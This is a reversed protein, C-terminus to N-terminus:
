KTENKFKKFNSIFEKEYKKLEKTELGNYLGTSMFAQIEDDIIKKDNVYGMKILKKKLKDYHTPKINKILIDVIKKYTKNTYYFGHAIEHDMTKLDKSSAGILYWDCRTGDNKNQSDIAGYYYIDNMIVDYETEKYFADVGGELINSPINYGSWDDPYTFTRKKWADKYFRMYEMWSFKKGRFKKYPSEYYEQYRCFLMARDYDDDVIVCYIRPAVEKVVGKVLPYKIKKM